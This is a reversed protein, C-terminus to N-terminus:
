GVPEVPLSQMIIPKVLIKYSDLDFSRELSPEFAQKRSCWTGLYRWQEIRHRQVWDGKQEVLDVAGPYPWIHVKLETVAAKLRADHDARPEEGICAGRCTKVQVGFCGRKGLKELGLLGHCLHHEEALERLKAEAAHKSRFLGFLGEVHGAQEDSGTIIDTAIGDPQQRLRLSLLKKSRRLRINFLPHHLKILRAELLQAGIDGATEIVDVYRAQAIMRSKDDDRLHTQVRHHIDISKGIYLPMTREGRFIYVGASRPMQQVDDPALTFTLRPEPLKIMGM